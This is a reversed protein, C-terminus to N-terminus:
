LLLTELLSYHKRQARCSNTTLIQEQERFRFYHGKEMVGKRLGEIEGYGTADNIKGGVDRLKRELELASITASISKSKNRAAKDLASLLGNLRNQAQTRASTLTSSSTSSSPSTNAPKSTTNPSDFTPQSDPRFYSSSIARRSMVSGLSSTRCRCVITLKSTSAIATMGLLLLVSSSFPPNLKRTYM